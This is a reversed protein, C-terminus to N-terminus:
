KSKERVRLVANTVPSRTESGSPEVEVRVIGGDPAIRQMEGPSVEAVTPMRGTWKAVVRMSGGAGSVTAAKERGSMPFAVSVAAEPSVRAPLVFMAALNGNPQRHLATIMSYTRPRPEPIIRRVAITRDREVRMLVVRTHGTPRESEDLFQNLWWWMDVDSWVLTASRITVENSGSHLHVEGVHRKGDATWAAAAYNFPEKSHVEIVLQEADRSRVRITAPEGLERWTSERATTLWPRGPTNVDGFGPATQLTRLEVDGGVRSGLRSAVTNAAAAAEHRTVRSPTAGYDNRIAVVDVVGPASIERREFWHTSERPHIASRWGITALATALTVALMAARPMRRFAVWTAISLLVVVIFVVAPRQERVIEAVTPWQRRYATLPEGPLRIDFSPLGSRIVKEDAAFTAVANRVLYPSDISGAIHAGEKARWSVPAPIATVQGESYPWPVAIEGAVPRLEVPLLARDTADMAPVRDPVGFFVVHTGSRFIAERVARPLEFWRAIPVVVAAFGAYWQPVQSLSAAEIVVATNGFYGGTVVEGTWAIRLPRPVDVWPPVGLSRQAILNMRSDLWEIILERRTLWRPDVSAQPTKLMHLVTSFTWRSRPPLVARAIVPVDVTMYDGAAFHYGVHGDFPQEGSQARIEIPSNSRPVYGGPYGLVIEVSPLGPRPATAVGRWEEAAMANGLSLVIAAIVAPLEKHLKVM